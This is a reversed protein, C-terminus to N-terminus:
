SRRQNKTPRKPATLALAREYGADFDIRTIERTKLSYSGTWKAKPDIDDYTVLSSSATLPVGIWLENPFKRERHFTLLPFHRAADEILEPWSHLRIKGPKKSRIKLKQVARNQWSKGDFLRYDKVDVLRLVCYGDMKFTSWDLRHLLVLNPSIDVVFGAIKEEIRPRRSFEILAKGKNRLFIRRWAASM